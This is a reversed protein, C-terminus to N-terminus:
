MSLIMGAQQSWLGIPNLITVDVVEIDENGHYKLYSAIYPAIGGFAYVGGLTIFSLCGAVLSLYQRLKFNM